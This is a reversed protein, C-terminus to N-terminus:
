DMSDFEDPFTAEADECGRMLASLEPAPPPQLTFEYTFRSRNGEVPELKFFADFTISGGAATGGWKAECNEKVDRFFIRTSVADLKALFSGGEAMGGGWIDAVEKMDPDWVVWQPLDALYAWVTEPTAQGVHGERFGQPSKNQAQGDRLARNLQEVLDALPAEEGELERPIQLKRLADGVQPGFSQHQLAALLRLAAELPSAAARRGEPAPRAEPATQLANAVLDTANLLAVDRLVADSRAVVVNSLTTNLMGLTVECTIGIAALLTTNLMGLTVECTIGIAALAPEFVADRSSLAPIVARQQGFWQRIGLLVPSRNHTGSSVARELGPITIWHMLAVITNLLGPENGIDRHCQQQINRQLMLSAFDAEPCMGRMIGALAATVRPFLTVNNQVGTSHSFTFAGTSFCKRNDGDLCLPGRRKASTKEPLLDLLRSIDHFSAKGTQLFFHALHEATPDQELPLPLSALASVDLTLETHTAPINWELFPTDASTATDDGRSIEELIELMLLALLACAASPNFAPALAKPGDLVLEGFMMYRAIVLGILAIFRFYGGYILFVEEFGQLFHLVPIKVEDHLKSWGTPAFLAVAANTGVIWRGVKFLVYRTWGLRALVNLVITLSGTGGRFDGFRLVQYATDGPVQPRKAVVLRSYVFKTFVVQGDALLLQYTVVLGALLIACGVTGCLQAVTWMFCPLFRRTKHRARTLYYLLTPGTLFIGGVALISMPLDAVKSNNNGLPLMLVAFLRIPMAIQKVCDVPLIQRFHAAM